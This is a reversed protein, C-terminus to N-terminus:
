GENKKTAQFNGLCFSKKNIYCRAKSKPNSAAQRWAAIRKAKMPKTGVWLGGKRRRWFFPVSQLLEISTHLTVIRALDLYYNRYRRYLSFTVTMIPDFSCGILFSVLNSLGLYTKFLGRLTKVSRGIINSHNVRLFLHNVIYRTIFLLAWELIFLINKTRLILRKQKESCYSLLKKM